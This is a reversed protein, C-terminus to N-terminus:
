HLSIGFFRTGRFVRIVNECEWQECLNPGEERFSSDVLSTILSFADSLSVLDERGKFKHTM